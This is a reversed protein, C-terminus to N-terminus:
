DETSFVRFNKIAVGLTKLDFADIEDLVDATLKGDSLVELTKYLSDLEGGEVNSIVRIDKGKPARLVYCEGSVPLSVLLNGAEDFTASVKSKAM